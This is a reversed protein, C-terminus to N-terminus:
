FKKIKTAEVLSTSTTIIQAKDVGAKYFKNMIADFEEGSINSNKFDVVYKVDKNAKITGVLKMFEKPTGNAADIFKQANKVDILGKTTVFDAGTNKAARGVISGVQNEAALAVKLEQVADTTVKGKDPDFVLNKYDKKTFVYEINKSATVAKIFGGILKGVGYAIFANALAKKSRNDQAAKLEPSKARNHEFAGLVQTGMVIRSLWGRTLLVDTVIVTQIIAGKTLTKNYSKYFDDRQDSPIDKLAGFWSGELGDIDINQIPSNSAFQYPTLEPYDATLPDVSLFRGLRTDYIRMGYDQQNGEGKAENDNEKGNFGYRYGGGATFKRGPMGMGFPYYDYSICEKHLADNLSSQNNFNASIQYFLVNKVEGFQENHLVLFPHQHWQKVLKNFFAIATFSGFRIAAPDFRM